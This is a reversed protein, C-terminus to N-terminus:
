SSLSPVRFAPTPRRMAMTTCALYYGSLETVGYSMPAPGCDSVAHTTACGSLTLTIVLASLTKM